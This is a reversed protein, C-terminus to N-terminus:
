MTTFVLSGLKMTVSAVKKTSWPTFRPTVFSIVPVTRTAPMESALPKSEANLM